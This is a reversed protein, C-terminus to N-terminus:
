PGRSGGPGVARRLADLHHDLSAELRGRMFAAYPRADGGVQLAQLGDVYAVREAPGIVVPPYGAKLLVLNMLLRGTRGNGDTFPHITVLREHAAFAVEPEVGGAEGTVRGLWLGFDGMLPGLEAPSPLVLPSGLIQRQVMSYRGAEGPEVRGTVLRHIERVDGERLTEVRGALIRVYGLADRHGVAELHDRLPKGGVTIGKELVVATESRTLTNGEIANSSYTLEVDYWADLAAVSGPSLPRLRDLEAKKAALTQLGPM